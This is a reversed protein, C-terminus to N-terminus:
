NIVTHVLHVKHTVLNRWFVSLVTYTKASRLNRDFKAKIELVESPLQFDFYWRCM